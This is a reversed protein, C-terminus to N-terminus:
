LAPGTNGVPFFVEPDEERCAAEHRWDM